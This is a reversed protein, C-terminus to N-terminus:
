ANELGITLSFFDGAFNYVATIRLGKDAECTYWSVEAENKCGFFRHKPHM